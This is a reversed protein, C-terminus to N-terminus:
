PEASIPRLPVSGPPRDPPPSPATAPQPAPVFGSNTRGLKRERRIRRRQHDRLQLHKAGATATSSPCGLAQSATYAAQATQLATQDLDASEPGPSDSSPGSRAAPETGARGPYWRNVDVLATASAVVVRGPGRGPQGPRPRTSPPWCNGPKSRRGSWSMSPPSTGSSDFNESASTAASVNGSASVSAPSHRAAGDCDPRDDDICGFVLRLHLLPRRIRGRGGRRGVRYLWDAQPPADRGQQCQTTTGKVYDSPAAQEIASPQDAPRRRPRPRHRVCRHVPPRRPRTPLAPPTPRARLPHWADATDSWAAEPLEPLRCVSHQERWRSRLRRRLRREAPSECVGEGRDFKPNNAFGGFGNTGSPRTGGTFGGTGSPAGGRHSFNPLTVGHQALCNRYATFSSSSTKSAASSKATTSTTAASRRQQMRRAGGRLAGLLLVAGALTSGAFSTSTAMYKPKCAKM